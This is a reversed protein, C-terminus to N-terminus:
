PAKIGSDCTFRFSRGEFAGGRLFLRWAEDKTKIHSLDSNQALYYEFDFCEPGRQLLYGIRQERFPAPNARYANSLVDLSGSAQDTIVRSM